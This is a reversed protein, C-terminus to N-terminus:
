SSPYWGYGSFDIVVDPNDVTDLTLYITVDNAPGIDSMQFPLPIVDTSDTSTWSGLLVDKLGSGVASGYSLRAYAEWVVGATQNTVTINIGGSKIHQTSAGTVSSAAATDINTTGDSGSSINTTISAISSLTTNSYVNADNIEVLEAM